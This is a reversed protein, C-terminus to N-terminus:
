NLSSNVQNLHVKNSKEGMVLAAEMTQICYKFYHSFIVRLVQPKMRWATCLKQWEPCYFLIFLAQCVRLLYKM